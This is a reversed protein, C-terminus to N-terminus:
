RAIRDLFNSAATIFESATIGCAPCTVTGDTADHECGPVRRAFEIVRGGRKQVRQLSWGFLQALDPYDWDTQYLEGDKPRGRGFLLYTGATNAKLRM